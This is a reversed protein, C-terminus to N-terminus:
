NKCKVASNWSGQHPSYILMFPSYTLIHFSIVAPLTLTSGQYERSHVSYFWSSSWNRWSTVQCLNLSHVEHIHPWLMHCWIQSTDPYRIAEIEACAGGMTVLTEWPKWWDRWDFVASLENWKFSIIESSAAIYNVNKSDAGFITVCM